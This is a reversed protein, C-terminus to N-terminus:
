FQRRICFFHVKGVRSICKWLVSLARIGQMIMYANEERKQLKRIIIICIDVADSVDHNRIDCLFANKGYKKGFLYLLPM